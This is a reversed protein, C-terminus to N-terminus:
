SFRMKSLHETGLFTWCSKEFGGLWSLKENRFCLRRISLQTQSKAAGRVTAWWAERDMSNELCSYRLLNGNGERLPWEPGLSWFQRKHRRCQCASEKGSCWRPLMRGLIKRLGWDADSDGPSRTLGYIQDAPRPHRRLSQMELVHQHQPGSQASCPRLPNGFLLM